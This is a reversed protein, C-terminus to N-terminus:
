GRPAQTLVASSSGGALEATRWQPPMNALNMPQREASVTAPHPRAAQRAARGPPIQRRRRRSVDFGSRLDSVADFGVVEFAAEQTIYSKYPRAM